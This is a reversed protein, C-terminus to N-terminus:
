RFCEKGGRLFSFAEINGEGVDLRVTPMVFSRFECDYCCQDVENGSCHACLQVTSSGYGCNGEGNDEGSVCTESNNTALTTWNTCDVYDNNLTEARLGNTNDSGPCFPAITNNIVQNESLAFDLCTSQCVM